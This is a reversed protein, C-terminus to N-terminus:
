RQVRRRVFSEALSEETETILNEITEGVVRRAIKKIGGCIEVSNQM